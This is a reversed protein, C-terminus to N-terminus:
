VTLSQNLLVSEDRVGVMAANNLRQPRVGNYLAFSVEQKLASNSLNCLNIVTSSKSFALSTLLAGYSDAVILNM